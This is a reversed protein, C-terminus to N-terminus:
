RASRAPTRAAARASAARIKELVAAPDDLERWTLRVVEFGLDLLRSERAKEAALAERGDAGEYKVMGDFEVVVRAYALFDVRAVLVTGDYIRVQSRFPIELDRLLIRTRSEGVSECAPDVLDVARRARRRGSRSMRELAERLADVTTVQAHVAADMAVVGALVGNAAAHQVLADALATSPWGGAQVVSRGALPHVVVGALSHVRLVSGVLDIRNLDTQWLPLGRLALAAHSAAADEPRSRLVACVRLRYREQPKAAAYPGGDVFAGASGSSRAGACWRPWRPTTWGLRAPM